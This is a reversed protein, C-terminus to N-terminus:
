AAKRKDLAKRIMDFLFSLDRQKRLAGIVNRPMKKQPPALHTAGTFIIVPIFTDPMNLDLWELFGYGDRIGDMCASDVLNLDLIMLDPPNEMCIHIADGANEACIPEYGLKGLRSQLIKRVFSDDEVILIRESM